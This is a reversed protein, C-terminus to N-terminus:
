FIILLRFVSILSLVSNLKFIIDLLVLSVSNLKLINLSIIRKTKAKSSLISNFVCTNIIEKTKVHRLFGRIVTVRKAIILTALIIIIVCVRLSYTFYYLLNSISQL